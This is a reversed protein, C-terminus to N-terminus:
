DSDWYKTHSTLIDILAAASGVHGFVSVFEDTGVYQDIVPGFFQAVTLPEPCYWSAISGIHYDWSLGKYRRYLACFICNLGGTVSIHKCGEFLQRTETHFVQGGPKKTSVKVNQVETMKEISQTTNQDVLVAKLDRMDNSAFTVTGMGGSVVFCGPVGKTVLPPATPPLVGVSAFQWARKDKATDGMASPLMEALRKSALDALMPVNPQPLRIDLLNCILRFLKGIVRAKQEAVSLPKAKANDGGDGGTNNNNSDGRDEWKRKKEDKCM